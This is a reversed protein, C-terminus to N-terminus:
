IKAPSMAKQMMAAMKRGYSGSAIYKAIFVVIRNAKGPIISVKKGFLRMAEAAVEEAEMFTVPTKSWDIDKSMEEAMPTKTLGPSLISVDVGKNQLEAHLSIGFNLVYSKTAAYNAFFPGPLHGTLSSIFFIGGRSREAMKRSFHHSLKMVSIINLEILKLKKNVDNKYFLGNNEIGASLVLFGTEYPESLRIVTEIGEKTGLDAQISVVKINKHKEKLQREKEGLKVSNRAVLILNLGRNALEGALALGIGSTGGTILAWPGYKEKFHSHNEM